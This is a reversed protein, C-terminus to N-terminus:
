EGVECGCSLHGVATDHALSCSAQTHSVVTLPVTHDISGGLSTALPSGAPCSLGGSNDHQVNVSHQPQVKYM